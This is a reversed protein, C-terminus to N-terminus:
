VLSRYHIKISHSEELKSLPDRKGQISASVGSLGGSLSHLVSPLLVSDCIWEGKSGVMGTAPMTSHPPDHRCKATKHALINRIEGCKIQITNRRGQGLLTSDFHTIVVLAYLKSDSLNSRQDLKWM